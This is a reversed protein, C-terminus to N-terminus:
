SSTGTEDENDDEIEMDETIDLTNMAATLVSIFGEVGAKNMYLTKVYPYTGVTLSVRNNDTIGVSYYTEPDKEPLPQPILLDEDKQLKNYEQKNKDFWNLM